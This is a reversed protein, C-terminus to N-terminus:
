LTESPPKGQAAAEVGRSALETFKAGGVRLDTVTVKSRNWPTRIEAAASSQQKALRFDVVDETVEGAPGGLSFFLFRSQNSTGM